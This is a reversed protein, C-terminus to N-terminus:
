SDSAASYRAVTSPENLNRFFKEEAKAVPVAALKASAILKKTITQLSFESGALAAVLDVDASTPYIAAMPEARGDIIPLVGCGAEVRDRLSQLYGDTMFPMDIALALLHGTNIRALTATLGSLPGRSPAEDAIFEVDNPRWPPDTRASIFIEHPRLNRLLDLQIQWLPRGRFLFTAKDQGMRRSEGGALLVASINM